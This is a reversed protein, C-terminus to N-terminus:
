GVKKLMYLRLLFVISSIVIVFLIKYSCTSHIFKLFFYEVKVFIMISWSAANRRSRIFNDGWYFKGLVNNWISFYSLNIQGLTRVAAESLCILTKVDKRVIWGHFWLNLIYVAWIIICTPITWLQNPRLTHVLLDKYRIPSFISKIM